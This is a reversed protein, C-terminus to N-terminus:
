PGILEFGYDNKYKLIPHDELQTEGNTGVFLPICGIDANINYIRRSGDMYKLSSRDLKFSYTAIYNSFRDASINTSNNYTGSLGRGGSGTYVHPYNVLNSLATDVCLINALAFEDGDNALKFNNDSFRSILEDEVQCSVTFPLKDYKFRVAALQLKNNDVVKNNSGSKLFVSDLFQGDHIFGRFSGYSSHTLNRVGYPNEIDDIQM